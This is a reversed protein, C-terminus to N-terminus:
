MISIFLNELQQNDMNLFFKKIKKKQTIISENSDVLNFPIINGIKPGLYILSKQIATKRTFPVKFYPNRTRSYSYLPINLQSFFKAVIICISCSFQKRVNLISYDQFLQRTHELRNVKAILRIFSKQIKIIPDLNTKYTGGWLFIGYCILSHVLAFYVTRLVLSPLLKSLYKFKCIIFLLKRKLSDVHKKWNLNEDFYIGLYKTAERQNIVQCKCTSSIECNSNHYVLVQSFYQTNRLSFNIYSTKSINITMRNYYFWNKLVKFDETINNYNEELNENEYLLATDDAFTFIKGKLKSDCLDNIYVIFLLPGLTSGQPVGSKVAKFESLEGNLRVAQKRDSLYSKLWDAVTGRFGAKYLKDLLIEHSVTDFAKTIDIFLGTVKKDNNIGNLIASTFKYLALDTGKNKIFGYQNESFFNTKNLFDTIRDSVIKEFLKSIVPLLAIPRYHDPNMDDGGKHLPVVIGKKFALPFTGTELSLNFIHTLISAIQENINKIFNTEINDVGTSKGEKLLKIESIIQKEDIPFFAFSNLCNKVYPTFYNYNSDNDHKQISKESISIFHENLINAMNKNDTILEGGDDTPRTKLSKITKSSKDNQCGMIEKTVRWTEKMNNKNKNFVSEYYLRKTTRILQYLFNRYSSYKNKLDSNFPQKKLKNFMKDRTRISNLLGMTMWPKLKTIKATIYKYEKCQEIAANLIQYFRCLASNVDKENKVDNWTQLRLLEKVKTFNIFEKHKQISQGKKTSGINNIVVAVLYHDTIDTQVTFSKLSSNITQKVFIPDICSSKQTETGPRTIDLFCCYFGESSMLIKFEDIELSNELLDLNFDGTMIVSKLNSINGLLHSIERYFQPITFNHSRYLGIISHQIKGISLLLYVHDFTAYTNKSMLTAEIESNVFVAIGGAKNRTTCGFFKNYGEINYLSVEEEKIWIETLIIVNPKYTLSELYLLFSDFNKRLSRINMNIISFNNDVDTILFDLNEFPKRITEHKDNSFDILDINTIVM